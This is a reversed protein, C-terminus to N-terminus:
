EYVDINEDPNLWHVYEFGDGSENGKIALIMLRHLRQNRTIYPEWGKRIPWSSEATYEDSDYYERYVQVETDGILVKGVFNDNVDFAGIERSPLLYVINENNNKKFLEFQNPYIRIAMSLDGYDDQWPYYDAVIVQPLEIDPTLYLQTNEVNGDKLEKDYQEQSM